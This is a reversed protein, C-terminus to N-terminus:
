IAPCASVPTSGMRLDLIARAKRVTRVAIPMINPNATTEIRPNQDGGRWAAPTITGDTRYVPTLFLTSTLISADVRKPRKDRTRWSGPTPLEYKPAPPHSQKSPAPM